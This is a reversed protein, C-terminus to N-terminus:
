DDPSCGAYVTRSRALLTTWDRLVPAVQAAIWNTISQGGDCLGAILRGMAHDPLSPVLDRRGKHYDLADDPSRLGDRRPQRPRPSRSWIMSTTRRLTLADASNAADTMAAGDPGVCAPSFMVMDRQKARRVEDRIGAFSLTEPQWGDPVDFHAAGCAYAIRYREGHEVAWALAKRAVDDAQADGQYITADRDHTLYPPDLFIGVPPKPASPTQQLLSQAYRRVGVSRNLVM